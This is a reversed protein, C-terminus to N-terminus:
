NKYKTEDRKPFFADFGIAGNSIGGHFHNKGISTGEDVKLLKKKKKQM